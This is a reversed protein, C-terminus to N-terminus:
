RQGDTTGRKKGPSTTPLLGAQEAQKIRRDATRETFGLRQVARRPGGEANVNDLYTQAVEQLDPTLRLGARAASARRPYETSPGLYEFSDPGTERVEDAALEFAKMALDTSLARLHAVQVPRGNYKSRFTLTRVEPVGDVLLCEAEADPQDGAGTM